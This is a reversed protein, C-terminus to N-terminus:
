RYASAGIGVILLVSLSDLVLQVRQVSVPARDGTAAYIAAMWVRYGPPYQILDTRSSDPIRFFSEKGDLVDQAQRDFVAYSGFQFWAPDNFHARIFNATLARVAFALAVISLLFLIRNLPYKM